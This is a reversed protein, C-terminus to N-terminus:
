AGNMHVCWMCVKQARTHTHTYPHIFRHFVIQGSIPSLCSSLFLSPSVVSMWNAFTQKNRHFQQFMSAFSLSVFVMYVQPDNTFSIAYFVVKISDMREAILLEVVRCYPIARMQTCTSFVCKFMNWSSFNGMRESEGVMCLQFARKKEKERREKERKSEIKKERQRQMTGNMNSYRQLRIIFVVLMVAIKMFSILSNITPIWIKCNIVIVPTQTM